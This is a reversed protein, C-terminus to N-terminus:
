PSGVLHDLGRVLNKDVFKTEVNWRWWFKYKLLDEAAFYVDSPLLWLQGVGNVLMDDIEIALLTQAGLRTSPSRASVM